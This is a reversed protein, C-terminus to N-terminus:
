LFVGFHERQVKAAVGDGAEVLADLSGVASLQAQAASMYGLDADYRVYRFARPADDPPTMAGLEGDIPDGFVCRGFTRCLVDQEVAAQNMVQSLTRQASAALNAEPDAADPGLTPRTGTGVSVLLMRDEGAKWNLRYEPATAMRYLLFAPNNYPTTGGDVFVFPQVGLSVVEPPFFVPAATSARVVHWLPLRLNCDPRTRDNYKASINSSIPWPSDTTVNQTVVLLLCKLHEPELTADGFVEKLANAVPGGDYLSKYKRWIPVPTFIEAALQRYLREIDEVTMGRALGAAIIAGTSTGGIYDFWDSLVEGRKQERGLREIRRLVRLSLIGRVGGGDLALLRRPSKEPAYRPHRANWLDTM